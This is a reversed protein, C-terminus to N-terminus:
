DVAPGALFKRLANVAVSALAVVIPTYVGFDTQAVITALYTVAAGGVAVGLGKLIRKGDDANLSYKKSEM